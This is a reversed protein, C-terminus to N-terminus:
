VRWDPPRDKIKALNCAWAGYLRGKREFMVPVTQFKRQKPNKHPYYKVGESNYKCVVGVDGTMTTITTGIYEVKDGPYFLFDSDGM